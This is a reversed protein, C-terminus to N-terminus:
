PVTCTQTHPPHAVAWSARAWGAFAASSRGRAAASEGGRGAVRLSRCWRSGGQRSSRDQRGEGLSSRRGRLQFGALWAEVAFRGGAVVSVDNRHCRGRGSPQQGRPIPRDARSEAPSGSRSSAAGGGVSPRISDNVDRPCMRPRRTAMRSGDQCTRTTKLPPSKGSNAWTLRSPAAGTRALRKSAPQPALLM